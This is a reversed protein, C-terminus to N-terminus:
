NQLWQWLCLLCPLGQPLLTVWPADWHWGKGAAWPLVACASGPHGHLLAGAARNSCLTRSPLLLPSAKPLRVGGWVGEPVSLGGRSALSALRWEHRPASAAMEQMSQAPAAKSQALPFTGQAETWLGWSCLRMKLALIRMKKAEVQRNKGVAM